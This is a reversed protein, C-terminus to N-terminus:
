YPRYQHLSDVLEMARHNVRRFGTLTPVDLALLIDSILELPLLDLRGAPHRASLQPPTKLRGNDLPCPSELRAADLTHDDIGLERSGYGLGGQSADAQPDM